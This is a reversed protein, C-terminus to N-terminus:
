LPPHRHKFNVIGSASDQLELGRANHPSYRKLATAMGLAALFPRETTDNEDFLSKKKINVCYNHLVMTIATDFM